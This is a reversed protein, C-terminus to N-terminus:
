KQPIPAPTSINPVCKDAYGSSLHIAQQTASLPLDFLVHYLAM